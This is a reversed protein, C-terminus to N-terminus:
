RIRELLSRFTADSASGLRRAGHGAGNFTILTPVYVIRFLRAFARATDGAVPQRLRLERAYGEAVSPSDNTVLFTAIGLADGLSDM